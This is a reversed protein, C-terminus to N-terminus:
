LSVNKRRRNRPSSGKLRKLRQVIKKVKAPTMGLTSGIEDYSKGKWLLTVIKREPYPLAAIRRALEARSIARSKARAETQDAYTLLRYDDNRVGLRKREMARAKCYDAFINKEIRDVWAGANGTIRGGVLQKLIKQMLTESLEEADSRPVKYENDIACLSRTFRKQLIPLLCCITISQVFDAFQRSTEATVQRVVDTHSEPSLSFQKLATTVVKRITQVESEIDPQRDPLGIQQLISAERHNQKTARAKGRKTIGVSWITNDEPFRLFLRFRDDSGAKGYLCKTFEGDTGLQKLVPTGVRTMIRMNLVAYISDTLEVGIKSLPSGVPGMSFPIVYMTKGKMSGAFIKGARRYGEEPSMWKNTPKADERLETCIYTLHKTRAVDNAATCHYLCIPHEGPELLVPEGTAVGEQTLREREDESGDIWVIQNPGCLRAMEDVWEQLKHHQNVRSWLRRYLITPVHAILDPYTHCCGQCCALGQYRQRNSDRRDIATNHEIKTCATLCQIAVTIFEGRGNPSEVGMILMHEALWGKRQGVHSAIRLALCKKGLLVNGGYGSGVSWITNDVPFHLILWCKIDLDAKGDLCKTFAADAVLRNLIAQGVHTMIRMNLVVYIRDTLEVGITSFALRDPELWVRPM